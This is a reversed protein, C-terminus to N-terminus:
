CVPRAGHSNSNGKGHLRIHSTECTHIYIYIYGYIHIFINVYTYIREFIFLNSSIYKSIHNTECTHSTSGADGTLQWTKVMLWPVGTLQWLKFWPEGTFQWTKRPVGINQGDIRIRHSQDFLHPQHERRRQGRGREGAYTGEGQKNHALYGQLRLYPVHRAPCLSNKISSRSTRIRWIM